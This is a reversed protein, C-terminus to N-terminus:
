KIPQLHLRRWHAMGCNMKCPKEIGLGFSMTLMRTPIEGAAYAKSMSEELLPLGVLISGAGKLFVRRPFTKKM